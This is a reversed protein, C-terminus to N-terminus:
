RSSSAPRICLVFQGLVTATVHKIMISKVPIREAVAGGGCLQAQGAM